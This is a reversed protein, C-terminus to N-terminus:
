LVALVSINVLIKHFVKGSMSVGADGGISFDQDDNDSSTSSSLAVLYFLFNLFTGVSFASPELYPM